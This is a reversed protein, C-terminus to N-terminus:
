YRRLKGSNSKESRSPQLTYCTYLDAFYCRLVLGLQRFNNISTNEHWKTRARDENSNPLLSLRSVLKGHGEIFYDALISIDEELHRNDRVLMKWRLPRIGGRRPNLDKILELCYLKLHSHSRLDRM